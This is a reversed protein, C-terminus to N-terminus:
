SEYNLLAGVFEEHDEQAMQDELTMEVGEVPGLGPPIAPFRAFIRATQEDDDFVRPEMLLINDTCRRSIAAAHDQGHQWPPPLNSTIIILEPNWSVFGGKIPVQFAYIDLLRLLRSVDGGGVYEDIIVVREGRYGDFWQLNADSCIWADPFLQVSASTKGTGTPGTVTWVRLHPRMRAPHRLSRYEAFSRRYQCWQAFNSDAIELDTAGADISEKIVMLDSRRGQEPSSMVGGEEWDGDKKCYGSAEAATGRRIEVHSRPFLKVVGSLRVKKGFEIYGQLHNTGTSSVERGYVFYVIADSQFRQEDDSTPNNITICWYKSQPRSNM